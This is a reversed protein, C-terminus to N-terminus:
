NKEEKARTLEAELDVELNAKAVYSYPFRAEGSTKDDFVIEEGEVGTIRGRFNRQGNVVTNTKVKAMHGTFKAFDALSYLERELGPSSVELVYASSIFDEADLADGLRRSVAACDEHTVGGEKDIFVTVTPNKESGKVTAHVLELGNEGAADAALENVRNEIASRDMVDNFM